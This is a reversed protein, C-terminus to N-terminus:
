GVLYESGRSGRESRVLRNHRPSSREGETQRERYALVTLAKTRNMILRMYEFFLLSEISMTMEAVEGLERGSANEFGRSRRSVPNEIGFVISQRKLTDTTGRILFYRMEKIANVGIRKIPFEQFMRRQPFKNTLEHPPLSLNQNLTSHQPM